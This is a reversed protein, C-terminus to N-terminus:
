LLGRELGKELEVHREGPLEKKERAHRPGPVAEKEGKEPRHARKGEKGALPLNKM